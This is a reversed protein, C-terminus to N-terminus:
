SKTLFKSVLSKVCEDVSQNLDLQHIFDRGFLSFKITGDWADGKGVKLKIGAVDFAKQLKEQLEEDEISQEVTKPPSFLIAVRSAVKPLDM